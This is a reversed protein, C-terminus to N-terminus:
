TATNPPRLYERFIGAPSPPSLREIQRHSLAPMLKKDVNGEYGLVQPYEVKLGKVTKGSM